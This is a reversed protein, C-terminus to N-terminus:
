DLLANIKAAVIMDNLSVGKISHTKLSIKCENYGFCIEPHHDEKHAVWTAANVFAITQHYNKFKFTKHISRYDITVDWDGLMVLYSEITPIVLGKTGPLIPECNQQLLNALDSM